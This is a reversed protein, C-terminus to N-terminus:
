NLLYLEAKREFFLCKMNVFSRHHLISYAAALVNVKQELYYIHLYIFRQTFNKQLWIM